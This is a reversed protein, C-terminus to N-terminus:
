ALLGLERGRAVAHTRSRTDLKENIHRLHTKVTTESVFLREAMDRNSLGNALLSLVKREQATLGAAPGTVTTDSLANGTAVRAAYAQALADVAVGEDRMPSVFGERAAIAHADAYAAFAQEAAGGAWHAVALLLSLSLVRRARSQARAVVLAETLGAVAQDIRGSATLLRCRMVAPTEVDNAHPAFVLSASPSFAAAGASEAASLASEAAAVDGRLLALRARELRMSAVMRPLGTRHGIQECDHLHRLAEEERGDAWAVRCLIRFTVIVPDIYAAERILPLGALLLAEAEAHQGAEYMAEALFVAAIERGGIRQDAQQPDIDHAGRFRAQADRLRGQTLDITGELCHAITLTSAGDGGQVPDVAVQRGKDLLARAEAYHGLYIHCSALSNLQIVYPFGHAPTLVKSSQGWAEYALDLKDTLALIFARLALVNAAVDADREGAHQLTDLLALARGSRYLFTLAWAHVLCLRPRRAVAQAPLAAFWRTLLRVRGQRLLRDAHQALLDLAAETEGAWVLHDIAPVPRGESVYWDSARGHLGVLEAPSLSNALRARLFDGFLSHYRYWRCATDVPVLFLNGQALEALMRASDDRQLAADCLAPSFVNLASSRLLFQQVEAPQRALVDDSLYDAVSADSGSFSDIFAPADARQRLALVALWLAVIWGETRRHLKLVDAASLDVGAQERLYSASEETTFRLQEATFEILRGHARLRGLALDPVVRSGLVLRGHAPLQALLHRVFETVAPNQILEFEDLFLVFPTDLGGLREVLDVAPIRGEHVGVDATGCLLDAAANLGALFVSLDNDAAGLNIWAVAHGAERCADHMDRMATTKGFGAPAQVSVLPIGRAAVIPAVLRARRMTTPLVPPAALKAPAISM